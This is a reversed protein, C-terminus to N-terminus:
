EGVRGDNMGNKPIHKENTSQKLKAEEELKLVRMLEPLNADLQKIYKANPEKGSKLAITQNITNLKIM